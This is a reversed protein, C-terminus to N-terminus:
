RTPCHRPQGPLKPLIPDRRLRRLMAGNYDPVDLFDNSAVTIRATLVTGELQDKFKRNIQMADNGTIGLLVELGRM